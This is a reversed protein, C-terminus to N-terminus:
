GDITSGDPGPARDLRHVFGPGGLYMGGDCNICRGGSYILPETVVQPDIHMAAPIPTHGHVVREAGFHELLSAVALAGERTLDDLQFRGFLRATLDWWEEVSGNDLMAAFGENVSEISTGLDKYFVADCHVLLDNGEMALLPLSTMWDAQEDTLERVEEARGGNMLWTDLMESAGPGPAFRKVGMFLMDHNGALCHVRGGADSAERQLRMVLDIAALGQDGRDVLDGLFWLVADGGSWTGSGDILGARELAGLATDTQGHIDGIVFVPPREPAM